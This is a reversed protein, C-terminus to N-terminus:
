AVLPTFRRRRRGAEGQPESYSPLGDFSLGMAGEAVRRWVVRCPFVFEEGRLAGGLHVLVRAGEPATTHALVRMGGGSLDRLRCPIFGGPLTLVVPWPCLVRPMRRAGQATGAGLAEELESLRARERADLPIRLREARALLSQYAHVMHLLGGM